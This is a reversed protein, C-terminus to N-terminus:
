KWQHKLLIDSCTKYDSSIGDINRTKITSNGALLQSLSGDSAANIYGISYACNLDSQSYPTHSVFITYYYIFGLLMGLSIGVIIGSRANRSFLGWDFNTM